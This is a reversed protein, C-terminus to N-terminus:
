GMQVGLRSPSGLYDFKFKLASGDWKLTCWPIKNTGDGAVLLLIEKMDQGGDRM